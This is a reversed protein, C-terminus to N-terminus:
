VDLGDDVTFGDYPHSRDRRLANIEAVREQMLSVWAVRERIPVRDLAAVWLIGATDLPPLGKSRRRRVFSFLSKPESM